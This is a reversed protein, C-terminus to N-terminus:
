STPPIAPAGAVVYAGEAVLARTTALGIGKSAGTIVAVSGDLGLDM